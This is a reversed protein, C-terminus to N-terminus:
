LVLWDVAVIVHTYRLNSNGRHAHGSVAAITKSPIMDGGMVPPLGMKFVAARLMAVVVPSSPFTVGGKAM